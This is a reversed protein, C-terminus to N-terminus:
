ESLLACSRTFQPRGRAGRLDSDAVSTLVPLPNLPCLSHQFCPIDCIEQGRILVVFGTRTRIIVVYHIIIFFLFFM